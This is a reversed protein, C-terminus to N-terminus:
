TEIFAGFAPGAYGPRRVRFTGPGTLVATRATQTLGAVVNRSGPTDQEVHFVVSVPLFEASNSFIGVTVVSGAAVVISSSVAATTAAALITSQPM